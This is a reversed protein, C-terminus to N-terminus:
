RFSRDGRHRSDGDDADVGLAPGIVDSDSHWVDAFSRYSEMAVESDPHSYDPISLLIMM